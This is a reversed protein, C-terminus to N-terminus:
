KDHVAVQNLPVTHKFFRDIHGFEEERISADSTEAWEDSESVDSKTAIMFQEAVDAYGPDGPELIMAIKGGGYKDGIKLPAGSACIAM